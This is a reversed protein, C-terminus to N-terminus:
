AGKRPSKRRAIALSAATQVHYEVRGGVTRSLLKPETNQDRPSSWSKITGEPVHQVHMISLHWRLDRMGMWEPHEAPMRDQWWSVVASEGCLSCEAWGRGDTADIVARVPGNCTQNHNRPDILPCQGIVHGLPKAPYARRRCETWVFGIDHVLQDAHEHNNLLWSLHRDIHERLAEIIDAGTERAELLPEARRGALVAATYAADRQPQPLDPDRYAKYNIQSDSQHRVIEARARAVIIREDPLPSGRDEELIKCWTVLMTRMFTRAHRAHDSMPLAPENKGSRGSRGGGNGSSPKSGLVAWLEPLERLHERTQDAHHGCVLSGPAALAPHCECTDDRPCDAIHHRCTDV